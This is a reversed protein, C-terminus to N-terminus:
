RAIVFKFPKTEVPTVIQVFYIGNKLQSIDVTQIESSPLLSALPIDIKHTGEIDMVAIQKIESLAEPNVFSFSLTNGNIPNQEFQIDTKPLKLIELNNYFSTFPLTSGCISNIDELSFAFKQTPGTIRLPEKADQEYLTAYISDGKDQIFVGSSSFKSAHVSLDFFPQAEGTGNCKIYIFYKNEPLYFHHGGFVYANNPQDSVNPTANVSKEPKESNDCVATAFAHTCVVCCFILLLLKTQIKM